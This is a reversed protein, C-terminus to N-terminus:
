CPPPLGPRLLPGAPARLHAGGLARWLGSHAPRIGGRSTQARRGPRTKPPPLTPAPAREAGLPTLASQALAARGGVARKSLFVQRPGAILIRNRESSIFNWLLLVGRSAYIWRGRLFLSDGGPVTSGGLSGRARKLAPASFNIGQPPLWLQVLWQESFAAIVCGNM